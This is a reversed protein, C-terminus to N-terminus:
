QSKGKESPNLLAISRSLKTILQNNQDIKIYVFFLGLISIVFLFYLLLDAGRGVGLINAIRTSYQPFIVLYVGFFSVIFTLTGLIRSRSLAIRLGILAVVSLIFILLITM